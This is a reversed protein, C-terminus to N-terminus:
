NATMDSNFTKLICKLPQFRYFQITKDFADENEAMVQQIGFKRVAIYMNYKQKINFDM